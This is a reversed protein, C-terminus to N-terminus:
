AILLFFSCTIESRQDLPSFGRATSVFSLARLMPKIKMEENKTWQM